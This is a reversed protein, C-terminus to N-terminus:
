LMKLRKMLEEKQNVSFPIRKKGILIMREGVEDLQSLNIIYSRHVRLFHAPPLKEEIVKLTTTLLYEKERTFIRSYNREAEIYLVDKIFIKVMREKHRVFIRDDLIFPSAEETANENPTKGHNKAMLSLTLEIARQLDLKKYPKSIFAYPRTKKARNFTAEDTNSTLFIIPINQKEHVAEALQIGDMEGKLKVDLLLIDPTSEELFKLADEARPILGAVHYGLSELLMSVKAGIIMNDEVILINISKQM